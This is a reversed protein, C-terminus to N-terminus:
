QLKGTIENSLGMSSLFVAVKTDYTDIAGKFIDYAREHQTKAKNSHGGLDDPMVIPVRNHLKNRTM